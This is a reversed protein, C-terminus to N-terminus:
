LHHYIQVIEKSCKKIRLVELCMESFLDSDAGEGGDGHASDVPNPTPCFSPADEEHEEGLVPVLIAAM